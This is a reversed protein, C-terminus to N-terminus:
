NLHLFSNVEESFDNFSTQFLVGPHVNKSYQSTQIASYKEEKKKDPKQFYNNIIYGFSGCCKM